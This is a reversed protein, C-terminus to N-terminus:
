GEFVGRSSVTKRDYDQSPSFGAQRYLIDNLSVWGYKNIREKSIVNVISPADLVRQEIKSASSVKGTLLNEEPQLLEDISLQYLSSDSQAFSFFPIILFVGIFVIKLYYKKM